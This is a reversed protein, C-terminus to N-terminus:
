PLENVDSAEVFKARLVKGFSDLTDTPKTLKKKLIDSV